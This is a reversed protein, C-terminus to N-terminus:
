KEAAIKNILPNLKSYTVPGIIRVAVRGARDLILTSPIANPPIERFALTLRADGDFLSPYTIEFTREMAKAQDKSDKVDIGVFEVGQPRHETSLKQLTPAEGRCPACWSAWFNVVVVKGRLDALKLPKDDLTTGEVSLPAKREAAETFRATGDGAIFRNEGGNARSDGACGALLACAVAAGVVAVTVRPM